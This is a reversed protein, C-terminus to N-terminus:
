NYDHGGLHGWPSLVSDRYENMMLALSLRMDTVRDIDRDIDREKLSPDPSADQWFCGWLNRETSILQTPSETCFNATSMVSYSLVLYNQCVLDNTKGCAQSDTLSRTFSHTTRAFSRAFPWTSIRPQKSGSHKLRSRYTSSLTEAELVARRWLNMLAKNVEVKHFNEGKDTETTSSNHRPKM